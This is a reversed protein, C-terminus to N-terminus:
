RVEARGRRRSLAPLAREQGGRGARLLCLGARRGAQLRLRRDGGPRKRAPWAARKPHGRCDGRGVPAHGRPRARDRSPEQDLRLRDLIPDLDAVTAGPAAETVKQIFQAARSPRGDWPDKTTAAAHAAAAQPTAAGLSEARHPIYLTRGATAAAKLVDAFADRERVQAIGTLRAAEDGPVLVPGESRELRENRPTVFLTTSKTRGDLLVLARPVEVGTLYFFQSNQRFRVYAPYEAAGQLVAVGDGIAEFVKARRAAFEEAPLADTFLPAQASPYSAAAALMALVILIRLKSDSREDREWDAATMSYQRDTSDQPDHVAGVWAGRMEDPTAFRAEPDRSLARLLAEAQHAPLDARLTRPDAPPGEFMAGLLVPLTPANYPTRGTAM